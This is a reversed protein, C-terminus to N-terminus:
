NWICIGPFHGYDQSFMVRMSCLESGVPYTHILLSCLFLAAGRTM